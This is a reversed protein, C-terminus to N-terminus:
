LISQLYTSVQDLKKTASDSYHSITSPRLPGELIEILATKDKFFQAVDQHFERHVPIDSLILPKQFRQRAEMPPLDFGEALSFSILAESNQYLAELAGDCCNSLWIVNSNASQRLEHQLKKTKWGPRGVIILKSNFRKHSSIEKWVVSALSYNKRPEVTGVALFYNSPEEDQVYVCGQCTGCSNSSVAPLRCPIVLTKLSKGKYIRRVELETASSDCLFIANSKVAADLSKTFVKTAWWRFWEPNTVPFLDHLRIIWIDNGKGPLLPGLQSQYFAGSFEKPLSVLNGFVIRSAVLIKRRFRSNGIYGKPWHIVETEFNSKLWSVMMQSDRGIGSKNELLDPDLWIKKSM